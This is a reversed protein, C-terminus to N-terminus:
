YGQKVKMNTTLIYRISDEKLSDSAISRSIEFGPFTIDAIDLISYFITNSSLKKDKNSLINEIKYPYTKNYKESSWFIFPVHFDYKTYSSGAHLVINEETDFLNEGHDSVYIATSICNMSDLKHITNALFYDTYLISNDYTNILLEKNKVSIIGYDFAGKLSPQYKEFTSPYRFNYRFHSGLTHLVIFIKDEDQSLIEDLSPWLNEDFNNATDFDVTAFYEKNCDTAIRRIFYNGSSQNAIWYTHFGAEQFADVFSKEKNSLEYNKPTARTLIFPLSSQTINAESHFDSYSIINPMNELLPNTKRGYGNLSFSNYRATEGIVLLYVEKEKVPINKKAGFAFSELQTYNKRVEKQIAYVQYSKLILDYPYIKYFKLLFKETGIKVADEKSPTTKYAKVVCFSYGSFFLICIIGLAYVKIKKSQIFYSNEIKAITIYFYFIYITFFLLVPIEIASLLETTEQINTLYISQLFALTVTMKNMYIHAMEVPALLVFIGQILFFTRVKLFLSPIFFLIFSVTIYTATKLISAGHFDSGYIALFLNPILVIVSLIIIWVLDKRQRLTYFPIM